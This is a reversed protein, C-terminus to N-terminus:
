WDTLANRRQRWSWSTVLSIHISFDLAIVSCVWKELLSFGVRDGLWLQHYYIGGLVLIFMWFQMSSCFRQFSTYWPPRYVSNTVETLCTGVVKANWSVFSWKKFEAVLSDLHSNIRCKRKREECHHDGDTRHYLRQHNRWELIQVAVVESPSTFMDEQWWTISSNVKSDSHIEKCICQVVTSDTCQIFSSHVDAPFIPSELNVTIGPNDGGTTAGCNVFAVNGDCSSGPPSGDVELVQTHGNNMPKGGRALIWRELYM